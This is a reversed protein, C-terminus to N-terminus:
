TSKARRSEKNAIRAYRPRDDLERHTNAYELLTICGWGAHALHPLKSEPDLWEGRWYKWLHRMIAAFIRGWSIGKEWNRDDYKGAGYTYVAAIQELPAPPFLDFRLKGDDLKVGTTSEAM